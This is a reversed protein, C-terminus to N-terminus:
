AHRRWKKVRNFKPYLIGRFGPHKHRHEAEKLLATLNQPTPIDGIVTFTRGWGSKGHADSSAAGSVQHKTSWEKAPKSKNQFVARGNHVEIVDVDKAISDLVDATVGSRVTEFPHPIYVIGGQSKIQRVTEAATLGAPIVTKLFLGIIEGEQTTIEEGIIIKDGHIAHLEVAKDITNHDTVAIFDLKGRALM